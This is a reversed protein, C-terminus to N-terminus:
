RVVMVNGGRTVTDEFKLQFTIVYAYVGEMVTTGRLTGDWGESIDTLDKGEYILEGWRDYIRMSKVSQVDPGFGFFFDNVGDGNPTFTNPIFINPIYNTNVFITIEDYALCGSADISTVTYTTTQLPSAFVDICTDCSLGNPPEWSIIGGYSFGDIYASDGPNIYQDPGMEIYNQYVTINDSAVATCGNADTYTYNVEYPGGVGAASADFINGSVGPGSFIGGPPSATLEYLDGICVGAELSMIVLPVPNISLVTTFITDCIGPSSNLVPYSGADYVITGDPLEFSENDCIATDIFIEPTVTNMLTLTITSDCGSSSLTTTIYTGESDVLTGDALVYSGGVCFSDTVAVSDPYAWSLDTVIVSDCGEITSFISFYTGASATLAGDPLLYTTGVCIFDNVLFSYTPHVTLNTIIISDSGDTAILTVEYSGSATVNTGDPLTYTEDDCISTDITTTFSCPLVVVTDTLYFPDYHCYDSITVSYTGPSTVTTTYGVDGTSWEPDGWVVPYFSIDFTISASDCLYLTDEEIFQYTTGGEDYIPNPPTVADEFCCNGGDSVYFTSTPFCSYDTWHSYLLSGVGFEALFFQVIQPSANGGGSATEGCGEAGVMCNVIPSGFLEDGLYNTIAINGNIADYKTVISPDVGIFVTEDITAGCGDAVQDFGAFIVKTINSVYAGTFTIEVAHYTCIGVKLDPIDVDVDITIHGGEYNSYIIVNGDIHCIDQAFVICSFLLFLICILNKM